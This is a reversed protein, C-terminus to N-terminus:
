DCSWDVARVEVQVPDRRSGAHGLLGVYIGYDPLYFDPRTIRRNNWRNVAEHEYVYKLHDGHSYDALTRESNSRVTEGGSELVHPSCCSALIM